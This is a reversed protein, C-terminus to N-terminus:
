QMITSASVYLMVIIGVTVVVLDFVLNTRKVNLSYNRFTLYHLMPPYIYILPICALSGVLSVFRDLDNAAAWAIFAILSVFLARFWNKMWKVRIDHKGSASSPFIGNEVIKIAPFLQLPTSLLIALSYLMQVANSMASDKPFNLLIVTHLDSGFTAYGILGCSIFIGTVALIVGLLCGQFKAPQKMSEQIPILLGIGEYTFIATGIFLTWSSRNFMLMTDTAAGFQAVHRLCYYYVYILGLLIFLDAILATISLKAINRTLCLPLYALLQLLIYTTTSYDQGFASKCFARLNSATFVTYAASFGVQSLVISVLITRQLMVGQLKRGLDGYGNVGAHIKTHILLMFCFYSLIGCVVILLSSFLWGGNHFGKPLFLVGTGVYSKLLLLVTKFVSATGTRSHCRNLLSEEEDFAVAISDSDREDESLDEGAFHGYLSLFEIFNRTFADLGRNRRMLLYSRRFGNPALMENATMGGKGSDTRTSEYSKTFSMSRKRSESARTVDQSVMSERAREDKWRYLDRTIDGGQLQLSNDIETALHRNVIDFMNSNLKQWDVNRSTSLSTESGSSQLLEKRSM